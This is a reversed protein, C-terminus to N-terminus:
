PMQSQLGALVPQGSCSHMQPMTVNLAGTENSCHTEYQSGSVKLFQISSQEVGWVRPLGCHISLVKRRLISSLGGSLKGDTLM